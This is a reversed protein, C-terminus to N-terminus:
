RSRRPPISPSASKAASTSPVAIGASPGVSERSPTTTNEPRNEAPPNTVRAASAQGDSETADSDAAHSTPADPGPADPGPADHGPTDSPAPSRRHAEAGLGTGSTDDARLCMSRIVHHFTVLGYTLPLRLTSVLLKTPRLPSDGGLFAPEIRNGLLRAFHIVLLYAYHAATIPKSVELEDLSVTEWPDAGHSLNHSIGLMIDLPTGGFIPIITGLLSTATEGMSMRDAPDLPILNHHIRVARMATLIRDTETRIAVANAPDRLQAQESVYRVLHGISRRGIPTCTETDALALHGAIERVIPAIPIDFHVTESPAGALARQEESVRAVCLELLVDSTRKYLTQLGMSTATLFTSLLWNYTVYGSFMELDTGTLPSGGLDPANGTLFRAPVLVTMFLYLWITEVAQVVSLNAVPIAETDRGDRIKLLSSVIMQSLPTRYRTSPDDRDAGLARPNETVLLSSIHLRQMDRHAAARAALAQDHLAPPLVDLVADFLSDYVVSLTVQDGGACRTEGEPIGRPTPLVPREYQEVREIREPYTETSPDVKPVLEHVPTPVFRPPFLAAIPTTSAASGNSTVFAPLTMVLTAVTVARTAAARRSRRTGRRSSRPSSM